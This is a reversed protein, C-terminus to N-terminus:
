TNSTCTEYSILYCQIFEYIKLYLLISFYNIFFPKPRSWLRKKIILQLIRKEEDSFEDSEPSKNDSDLNEPICDKSNFIEM